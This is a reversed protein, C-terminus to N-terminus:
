PADVKFPQDLYAYGHLVKVQHGLGCLYRIVKEFSRMVAPNHLVFVIKLPKEM